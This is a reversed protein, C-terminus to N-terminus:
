LWDLKMAARTSCAILLIVTSLRLSCALVDRMAPQNGEAAM